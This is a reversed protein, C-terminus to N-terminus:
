KNCHTQADEKLPLMVMVEILNQKRDPSKYLYDRFEDRDFKSVIELFERKKM